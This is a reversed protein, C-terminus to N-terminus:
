LSVRRIQVHYFKSFKGLRLKPSIHVQFCHSFNQVGRGESPIQFSPFIELTKGHELTGIINAERLNNTSLEM